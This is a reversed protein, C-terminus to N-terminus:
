HMSFERARKRSRCMVRCGHQLSKHSDTYTCPHSKELSNSGPRHTMIVTPELACTWTTLKLARHLVNTPSDEVIWCMKSVLCSVLSDTMEAHHSESIATSLHLVGQPLWLLAEVGGSCWHACFVLECWECSFCLLGKWDGRWSFVKWNGVEAFPNRCEEM